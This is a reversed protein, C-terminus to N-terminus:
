AYRCRKSISIKRVACLGVCYSIRPRSRNDKDMVRGLWWTVCLCVWRHTHTAFVFDMCRFVTVCVYVCVYVCVCSVCRHTRTAFFIRPVPEMVPYDDFSPLPMAAAPDVGGPLHASAANSGPGSGEVPEACNVYDTNLATILTLHLEHLTLSHTIPPTSLTVTFQKECGPPRTFM